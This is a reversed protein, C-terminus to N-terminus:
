EYIYEYKTEIVRTPEGKRAKSMLILIFAVLGIFLITSVAVRTIDPIPAEYDIGLGREITVPPLSWLVNLLDTKKVYNEGDFAQYYFSLQIGSEQGTFTYEYRYTNTDVTSVYNLSVSLNQTTFGTHTYYLTISIESSINDVDYVVVYFIIDESPTVTEDTEYWSIFVSPDNVAPSVFVFVTDIANNGTTDNVIITFNFTGVALGNVGISINIGSSWSGTANITTNKYATYNNSFLDTAVWEISYSDGIDGSQYSIDSPSNLVPITTDQVTIWVTDSVNNPLTDNITITFNHIGLTLNISILNIVIPTQNSWSGSGILSGNKNVVYSDPACCRETPIWTINGENFGAELTQDSPSTIEPIVPTQVEVWVLDSYSYSGTTNIVITFNHFGVTTNISDIDIVIPTQNNWSGSAYQSGNRYVVYKDPASQRETPIWTINEDTYAYALTKDSPSDIEPYNQSLVEVWVTDNAQYSQTDNIVITFNHMGITTNISDLNVDIPTQNSWSGSDYLSGNRYVVYSDPSYTRETPIWTVNENTSGYSIQKDAPSDIEPNTLLIYDFSLTPRRDVAATSERCSFDDDEGSEFDVGLGGQFYMNIHQRGTPDSNHFNSWNGVLYAMNTSNITNNEGGGDILHWFDTKNWVSEQFYVDSDRGGTSGYTENWFGQTLTDNHYFGVEFYEGVELKSDDVGWLTASVNEVIAIQQTIGTNWSIFIERYNDPTDWGLKAESSSTKLNIGTTENEVWFDQEDITQKESFTPDILVQTNATYSGYGYMGARLTKRVGLSRVTQDHLNLYKETFGAAEMDSFSFAFTEDNESVIEINSYFDQLYTGSQWAESVGVEIEHTENSIVFKAPQFPTGDSQPSSLIEYAMGIDDFSQDRCRFETILHFQSDTRNYKLGHKFDWTRSLIDFNYTNFWLSLTELTTDFHLNNRPDHQAQYLSKDNLIQDYVTAGLRAYIHPFVAYLPQNYAPLKGNKLRPYYIYQGHAYQNSLDM